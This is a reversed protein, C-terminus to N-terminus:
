WMWTCNLPIELLKIEDYRM